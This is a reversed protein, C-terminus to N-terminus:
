RVFCKESSDRDNLLAHSYQINDELLRYKNRWHICMQM